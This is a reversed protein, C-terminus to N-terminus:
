SVMRRWTGHILKDEAVASGVHRFTLLRARLMDVQDSGSRAGAVSCLADESVMSPRRAARKVLLRVCTNM